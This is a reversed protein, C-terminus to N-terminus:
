FRYYFYRWNEGTKQTLARLLEPSPEAEGEGIEWLDIAYRAIGAMRCWNLEQASAKNGCNGCEWLYQRKNKQWSLLHDSWNTFKARCRPCLPPQLNGAGLFLPETSTELLSVHCSASPKDPGAAKVSFLVLEEFRPGPKYHPEGLRPFSAGILGLGQLFEIMLAPDQLIAWPNAPHLVIKKDAM